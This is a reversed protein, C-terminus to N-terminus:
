PGVVVRYFRMLYNTSDFNTFNFPIV